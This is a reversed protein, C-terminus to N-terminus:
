IFEFQMLIIFLFSNPVIFWTFNCQKTPSRYCFRNNIGCSLKANIFSHLPYVQTSSFSVLLTLLIQKLQDLFLEVSEYVLLGSLFLLVFNSHWFVQRQCKAKVNLSHLYLTQFPFYKFHGWLMDLCMSSLRYAALTYFLPLPERKGQFALDHKSPSFFFINLPLHNIFDSFYIYFLM